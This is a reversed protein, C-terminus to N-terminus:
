AASFLKPLKLPPPSPGSLCGEGPRLSNIKKDPQVSEPAAPGRAFRDLVQARARPDPYLSRQGPNTGTTRSGARRGDGRWRFGTARLL